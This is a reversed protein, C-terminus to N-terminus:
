RSDAMPKRGSSPEAVSLCLIKYSDNAYLLDADYRVATRVIAYQVGPCLRVLERLEETSYSQDDSFSKESWKTIKRLRDNWEVISAADQPCDKRNVFEGRQAFWKFAEAEDPTHFQADAPTNAAVWRCADRWDARMVPPLQNSPPFAHTSVMAWCLGAIGVLWLWHQKVFRPLLMAVAIPLLLDFLRFPYFKLLAIRWQYGSMNQIPRPGFGVAWGALAFLVAALVYRAWWWDPQALKQRRKLSILVALWAIAIAGYGFCSVRDFDLPDLHHKLRYHVQIFNAAFADRANSAKLMWVAPLLGPLATVALLATALLWRRINGANSIDSKLNSIQFRFNPIEAIGMATVHWMGVIPHFSIAIGSCVAAAVIRRDLMAAVAWFVCAYAVVKSEFGGILWEGSLNGIAQLGVFLWASLLTKIAPSPTGSDDRQLRTSLATWSGALLGLSVARGLFAVTALEFWLTLWGFAQYFVRHAPFSQLFQDGACWSSDWYHRAMVLYHPENVAPIPAGVLSVVLFSLWV